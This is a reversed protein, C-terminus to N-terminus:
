YGFIFVADVNTYNEEIFFSKMRTVVREYIINYGGSGTQRIKPVILFLFSAEDCIHCKWLDLIDMNNDLTKGREVEMIIGRGNNLPAYYDPRLGRLGEYNQFLGNRESKFGIEKAKLLFIDQIEQSRANLKHKAAIEKLVEATNLFDLLDKAMSSAQKYDASSLNKKYLKTLEVCM